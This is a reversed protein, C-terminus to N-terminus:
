VGLEQDQYDDRTHITDGDIVLEVCAALIKIGAEMNEKSVLAKYDGYTLDRMTVGITDTFMIRNDPREGKSSVELNAINVKVPIRTDCEGPGRIEEAEPDFKLQEENILKDEIQSKCVYNIDVIDGVSRARIQMILHEVDYVPLADIDVEDFTCAKIVDDLANNLQNADQMEIAQLVLKQEKVLFPRFKVVRENSPLVVDFKPTSVSPLAM